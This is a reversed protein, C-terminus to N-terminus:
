AFKSCAASDRAQGYSSHESPEHWRREGEQM